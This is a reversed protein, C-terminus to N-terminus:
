GIIQGTKKNIIFHGTITNNRLCIDEDWDIGCWDYSAEMFVEWNGDERLVANETTVNWNQTHRYPSFSIINPYSPAIC